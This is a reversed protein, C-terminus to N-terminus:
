ILEVIRTSDPFIGAGWTTPVGARTPLHEVRIRGAHIDDGISTPEILEVVGTSDPFISARRATPVGARTPLHQVIIAHSTAEGGSAPIKILHM